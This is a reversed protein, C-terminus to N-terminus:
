KGHGDNARSVFSDLKRVFEQPAEIQPFHGANRVFKLRSGPMSRRLRRAANASTGSLQDRAGWLLLPVVRPSPAGDGAILIDAFRRLIITGEESDMLDRLTAPVQSPDAFGRGVASANFTFKRLLYRMLGRGVRTKGGWVLSAPTKPMPVGNVLILGACREPFRGALSWAVSAGFSNGVLWVKEIALEDLLAVLWEAYAEVSALPEQEVWGLGPLDAAVVEYRQALQDWVRNWHMESGGWGGHVLLLPTGTGGHYVRAPLGRVELQKHSISRSSASDASAKKTIVRM